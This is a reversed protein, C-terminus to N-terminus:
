IRGGRCCRRLSLPSFGKRRNKNDRPEPHNIRFAHIIPDIVQTAERPAGLRAIDALRRAASGAICLAMPKGCFSDLRDFRELLNGFSCRRSPHVSSIPFSAADPNPDSGDGM